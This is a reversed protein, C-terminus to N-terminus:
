AVAEGEEDVVILCAPSPITLDLDIRVADLDDRAIAVVRDSTQNAVWLHSPTVVLDRPWPGGCDIETERTLTSTEPDVTFVGITGAGRNAVFLTRGDAVFASPYIREATRSTSADIADTEVWSSGERRGLWLTASLECAVVLHDEVIVLHRPGSGPALQVPPAAETLRGSGDVRLRVVRDTGLDPVLIEDGDVVVQHAHPGEQRESDPGGGTLQFLDTEAGLTGSSDIGFCSVSGSGYNAVLVFRGSPDFCLHCAGSGTGTVSALKLLGGIADVVLTTVTTPGEESIAYVFPLGPHRLLYSPSDVAIAESTRTGGPSAPDVTLVSVGVGGGMPPTYAGIVLQSLALSTETTSM